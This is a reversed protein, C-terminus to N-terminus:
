QFCQRLFQSEVRTQFGRSFEIILGIIPTLRKYFGAQKAYELSNVLREMCSQVCLQTLQENNLGKNAAIMGVLSYLNSLAELQTQEEAAGSGVQFKSNLKDIVEVVQGIM